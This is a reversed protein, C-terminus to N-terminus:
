AGSKARERALVLEDVQELMDRTLMGMDCARWAPPGAHNPWELMELRSVSGIHGFGEFEDPDYGFEGVYVYRLTLHTKLGFLELTAPLTLWGRRERGREIEQCAFLDAFNPEEEDQTMGLVKLIKSWQRDDLGARLRACAEDVYYSPLM